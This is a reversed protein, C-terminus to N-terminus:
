AHKIKGSALMGYRGFDMVRKEGVM